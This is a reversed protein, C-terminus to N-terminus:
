IYHVDCFLILLIHHGWILLLNLCKGWTPQYVISQYLFISSTFVVTLHGMMICIIYPLTNYFIGTLLPAELKIFYQMNSLCLTVFYSVLSCCFPKCCAIDCRKAMPLVTCHHKTCIFVESANTPISHQEHINKTIRGLLTVNASKKSTTEMYPRSLCATLNFLYSLADM